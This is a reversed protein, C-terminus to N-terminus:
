LHLSTSALPDGNIGKHQLIITPHHSEHILERRDVVAAGKISILVVQTFVQQDIIQVALPLINCLHTLIQITLKYYRLALIVLALAVLALAVLALAVLAPIVHTPALGAGVNQKDALLNKSISPHPEGGNPNEESM